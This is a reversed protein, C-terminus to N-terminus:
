WVPDFNLSAGRAPSIRDNIDAEAGGTKSLTAGFYVFKHGEDITKNNVLIRNHCKNNHRMVDKRCQEEVRYM